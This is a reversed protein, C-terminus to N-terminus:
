VYGFISDTQFRIEEISKGDYLFWVRHNKDDCRNKYFNLMEDKGYYDGGYYGYSPILKMKTQESLLRSIEKIYKVYLSRKSTSLIFVFGEGNKFIQTWGGVVTDLNIDTHKM